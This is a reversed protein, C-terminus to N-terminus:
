FVNTRTMRIIDMMVGASIVLDVHRTRLVNQISVLIDRWVLVNPIKGMLYTCQDRNMVCVFGMVASYIRLNQANLKLTVFNKSPHLDLVLEMPIKMSNIMVAVFDMRVVLQIEFVTLLKSCSIIRMWEKWFSNVVRGLKPHVNEWSKM